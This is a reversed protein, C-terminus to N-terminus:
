THWWVWDNELQIWSPSISFAEKQSWGSGLACVWSEFVGLCLVLAVREVASLGEGELVAWVSSDILTETMILCSLPLLVRHLLRPALLSFIHGCDGLFAEGCGGSRLELRRQAPLSLNAKQERSSCRRFWVKWESDTNGKLTPLLFLCLPSLLFFTRMLNPWAWNQNWIPTNLRSHFPKSTSHIVPSQCEMRPTVADWGQLLLM